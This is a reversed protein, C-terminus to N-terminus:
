LVPLIIKFKSGKGLESSIIIEGRHLKIIQESIPLGLGFGQTVSRTSESRYFRNFINAQDEISIGPGNDEISIIASNKKLDIDSLINVVSNKPSYKVANDV